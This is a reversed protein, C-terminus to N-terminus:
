DLIKGKLSLPVDKPIESFMQLHHIIVSISFNGLIGIHVDARGDPVIDIGFLVIIKVNVSKDDDKISKFQLLLSYLLHAMPTLTVGLLPLETTDM